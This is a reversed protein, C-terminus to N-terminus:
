VEGELLGAREDLERLADLMLETASRLVTRTGASAGPVFKYVGNEVQNTRKVIDLVADDGILDGSEAHSIDGADFFMIGDLDSSNVHLAGSQRSHALMQVVGLLDLHSLNGSLATESIGLMQTPQFGENHSKLFTRLHSAVHEPGLRRDVYDDCGARFAAMLAQDGGDGMAIIPIHANKHDGHVIRPLEFANMERLNTACLIAAPTNWELMTLAYASQTSHVVEMGEQKLADSLRKAFFVNSDILLVKPTAIPSSSM